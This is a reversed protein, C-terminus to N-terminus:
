ERLRRVAEEMKEMDAEENPGTCRLEIEDGGKIAASLINLMSKANVVNHGYLIVIKSDCSEATQALLEACRIDLGEKSQVVLRKSVMKNMGWSM